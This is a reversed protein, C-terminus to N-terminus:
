GFPITKLELYFKIHRYKTDLLEGQKFSKTGVSARYMMQEQDYGMYRHLFNHEKISLHIVDKWHEENYSWHHCELGKKILHASSKKALYKEPYKERYRKMIERKAEKTPKHKDKYNLRHYKERHRKKEKEIWNPDEKLKKERERVRKRACKKCEYSRGSGTKYFFSPPHVVECKKCERYKELM